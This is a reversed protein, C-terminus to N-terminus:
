LIMQLQKAVVVWKRKVPQCREPQNNNTNQVDNSLYPEWSCPSTRAAASFPMPNQRILIGMDGDEIPKLRVVHDSMDPVLIKSTISRPIFIEAGDSYSAPSIVMKMSGDVRMTNMSRIAGRKGMMFRCTSKRYQDVGMTGKGTRLKDIEYRSQTSDSRPILTCPLMAIKHAGATEMHGLCGRGHIPCNWRSKCSLIDVCKVDLEISESIAYSGIVSCM